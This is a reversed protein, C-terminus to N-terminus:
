LVLGRIRSLRELIAKTSAASVEAIFEPMKTLAHLAESIALAATLAETHEGSYEERLGSLLM